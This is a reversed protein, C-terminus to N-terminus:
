RVFIRKNEKPWIVIAVVASASALALLGWVLWWPDLPNGDPVRKGQINSILLFIWGLAAYAGVVGFFVSLLKKM